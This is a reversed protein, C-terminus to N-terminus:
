GEVTDKEEERLRYRRLSISEILREDILLPLLTNEIYQDPWAVINFGGKEPHYHNFPRRIEDLLFELTDIGTKRKFYKYKECVRPMFIERFKQIETPM